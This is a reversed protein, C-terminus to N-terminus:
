RSAPIISIALVLLKVDAQRKQRAFAHEIEIDVCPPLRSPAPLGFPDPLPGLTM